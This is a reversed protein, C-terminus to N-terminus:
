SRRGTLAEWAMQDRASKEPAAWERAGSCCEQGARTVQGTGPRGRSELFAVARPLFEWAHRHLDSFGETSRLPKISLPFALVRGGAGGRVGKGGRQGGNWAILAAKFVATTVEEQVGAGRM